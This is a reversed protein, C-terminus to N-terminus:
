HRLPQILSNAASRHNTEPPRLPAFFGRRGRTAFPNAEGPNFIAVCILRKKRREKKEIEMHSKRSLSLIWRGPSILRNKANAPKVHAVQFVGSLPPADAFSRLRGIFERWGRLGEGCRRRVWFAGLFRNEPLYRSAYSFVVGIFVIAIELNTPLSAALIARCTLSAKPYVNTFLLTRSPINRWYPSSFNPSNYVDGGFTQSRAFAFFRTM